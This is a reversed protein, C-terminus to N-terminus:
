AGAVEAVAPPTILRIRFDGPNLAALRQLAATCRASDGNREHYLAVRRLLEAYGLASATGVALVQARITVVIPESVKDDRLLANSLNHYAEVCDPAAAVARRLLASKSKSQPNRDAQQSLQGSLLKGLEPALPSVIPHPIQRAASIRTIFRAILMQREPESLTATGAASWLVAASQLLRTVLAYQLVGHEKPSFSMEAVARRCDACHEIWADQAQEKDWRNWRQTEAQAHMRKRYLATPTRVFAGREVLRLGWLSDAAFDECASPILPPGSPLLAKRILGRFVVANFHFSLYDLVREFRDGTIEAQEVTESHGEFSVIDSYAAVADPRRDMASLLTELFTPEIIDDHPLLCFFETDVKSILFNCNEVWGKRSKHALVWFRSDAIFPACARISEDASLDVSVVAKFDRVTQQQLSQLTQAVFRAGNYVPVCVTVRATM